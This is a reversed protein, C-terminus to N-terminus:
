NNLIDKMREVMHEDAYKRWLHIFGLNHEIFVMMYNEVFEDLTEFEVESPLLCEDKLEKTTIKYDVNFSQFKDNMYKVSEAYSKTKM